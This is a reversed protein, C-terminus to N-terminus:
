TSEPWSGVGFEAGHPDALLAIRGAGMAAPPSVVRGGLQTAKAAAADCDEVAFWVQWMPVEGDRAVHAGCVLDGDLTFLAADDSLPEQEAWSFVDAYFRRAHSLDTTALENWVFTGPENVLGAGIFGTPQWFAVVSGVSDLAVAMRGADPIDTPEAIPSGGHAIVRAMTAEVDSVSVYVTWATPAGPDSLPGIGAVTTDGLRAMAYGGAAPDKDVTVDWGFMASYFRGAGAPDSTMLDVWCPTGPAYSTRSPM